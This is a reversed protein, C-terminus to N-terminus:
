RELLCIQGLLGHMPHYVFWVLARQSLQFVLVCLCFLLCLFDGLLLYEFFLLSIGAMWLVFFLFASHETQSQFCHNQSPQYHPLLTPVPDLSKLRYLSCLPHLVVDLSPGVLKRMRLVLLQLSCHQSLHFCCYCVLHCVWNPIIEDSGNRQYYRNSSGM